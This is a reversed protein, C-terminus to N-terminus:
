SSPNARFAGPSVGRLKKFISCLHRESAFGCGDAIAKLPLTSNELLNEARALRTSTLFEKIGTQYRAKFVHRLYHDSIGIRAAISQLRRITNFENLIIRCAEAAYREATGAAGDLSAPQLSQELLALLLAAGRHDYVAQQLSNMRPPPNTLFALDAALSKDASDKIYRMVRLQAPLPAAVGIHICIDDGISHATQFHAQEPPHIVWSGPVFDIQLGDEAYVTGGAGRHYVIEIGRHRHFPCSGLQVPVSWSTLFSCNLGALTQITVADIAMDHLIM